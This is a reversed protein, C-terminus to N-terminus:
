WVWWPASSQEGYVWVDFFAHGVLCPWLSGSRYRTYGLALGVIFTFAFLNQIPTDIRQEPLVFLLAKYGAHSLAGLAIAAKANWQNVAGQVFGRFVLEECCGILVSIIVFGSLHTPIEPLQISLRYLISLILSLSLAILMMGVWSRRWQWLTANLAAQQNNLQIVSMWYASLILGVIAVGNLPFTSNIFLAFIWLTATLYLSLILGKMPLSLLM